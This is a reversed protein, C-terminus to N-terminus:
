ANALRKGYRDRRKAYMDRMNDAQTGLFLHAPNVCAPTDCRHLVFIGDGLSKVGMHFMMSARSASMQRGAYRIIGYGHKNVRASWLWCGSMQEFEFKGAFRREFPTGRNVPKPYGSMRRRYHLSCLGKSDVPQNCDIHSCPQAPTEIRHQHVCSYSCFPARGKAASNNIRQKSAM